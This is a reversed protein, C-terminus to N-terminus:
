LVQGLGILAFPSLCGRPGSPALATGEPGGATETRVDTGLCSPLLRLFVM